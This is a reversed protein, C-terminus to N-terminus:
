WFGWFDLVVVRGAFDSLKLANGDVDQGVIEPAAQGINLNEFAFAQGVARKGSSTEPWRATVARMAAAAPKREALTGGHVDLAGAKMLAVSAQVEPDSAAACILDLFALAEEKSLAGRGGADMSAVRSLASLQEDTPSAALLRLIRTRKDTRAEEGKLPGQTFNQVVWLEAADSGEDALAVFRAFFEPQPPAPREVTTDDPNERLRKAAETSKARFTQNAADLEEKLADLARELDAASRRLAPAEQTAAPPPGQAHVPFAAALAFAAALTTPRTM